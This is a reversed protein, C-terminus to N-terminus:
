NKIALNVVWLDKKLAYNVTYFTGGKPRTLYALCYASHDVLYRNRRHMCGNDYQEATYIVQDASDLTREYKARDAESWRNSQSKCPLVMILKVQPFSERMEIVVQAALLDFGLAGGNYFVNIGAGILREILDYLRSKVRKLDTPAVQRHGTFCCSHEKM